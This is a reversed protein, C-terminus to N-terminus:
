TQDNQFVWYKCILFNLIFFVPVGLIHHLYNTKLLFALFTIWLFNIGYAIVYAMTYKLFLKKFNGKHSFTIKKNLFFSLIYGVFYGSFSSVFDNFQAYKMLLIISVGVATNLVGVGAFKFVQM